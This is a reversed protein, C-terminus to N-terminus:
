SLQDWPRTVTLGLSPCAEESFGPALIQAVSCPLKRKPKKPCPKETCCCNAIRSSARYVLSAEFEQLEM